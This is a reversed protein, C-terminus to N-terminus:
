SRNEFRAISVWAPGIGSSEGPARSTMDSNARIM